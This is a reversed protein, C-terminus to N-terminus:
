NQNIGSKPAQWIDHMEIKISRCQHMTNAHSELQNPLDCDLTGDWYLSLIEWTHFEINIILRDHSRRIKLMPIGINTLRYKYILVVWLDDELRLFIQNM